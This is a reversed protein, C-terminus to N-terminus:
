QASFCSASRKRGRCWLVSVIVVAVPEAGPTPTRPPIIRSRVRFGCVARLSIMCYSGAATRKAERSQMRLGCSCRRSCSDALGTGRGLGIAGIPLYTDVSRRDVVAAVAVESSFVMMTHRAQRCGPLLPHVGERGRQVRRPPYSGSHDDDTGFRGDMGFHYHIRGSM